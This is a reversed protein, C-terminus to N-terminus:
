SNQLNIGWQNNYETSTIKVFSKYFDDTLDKTRYNESCINGKWIWKSFFIKNNIIYCIVEKKERHRYYDRKQQQNKCEGKPKEM